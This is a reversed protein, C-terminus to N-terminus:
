DHVEGALEALRDVRSKKPEDKEESPSQLHNVQANQAHIITTNSVPAQSASSIDNIEKMMTLLAQLGALNKPILSCKSAELQGSMVKGLQDIISVESAVVLHNVIKKMLATMLNKDGVKSLEQKKEMWRYQLCTLYLVDKPTGTISSIEDISDGLMYLLFPSTEKEPPLPATCGKEALAIIRRSETPALSTLTEKWEVPLNNM